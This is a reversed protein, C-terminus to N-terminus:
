RLSFQFDVNVEGHPPVVVQQETEYPEEFHYKKVKGNEMDKGTIAVGEHWMALKYTGPPVNEIRFKGQDDTVTCYPNPAVMVYASMWPHGADCTTVLLDADSLQTGKVPTIQGKIPQAINFLSRTGSGMEYAHVNHLIPDSNKIEFQEGPCLVTVHPDYDCKFQNLTVKAAPLDEKGETINEIYIVANKVGGSKWVILRSCSKMSGCYDKDKTIQLSELKPPVGAYKVQGVISGGDKVEMPRYRPHERMDGCRSTSPVVTASALLIIAILIGKM